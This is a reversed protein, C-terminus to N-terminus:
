GALAGLLADLEAGTLGTATVTYCIYRMEEPPSGSKHEAAWGLPTDPGAGAADAARRVLVDASNDLTVPDIPKWLYLTTEARGERDTGTVRTGSVFGDLELPQPQMDGDGTILLSSDSSLGSSLSVQEGEPGTYTLRLSRAQRQVEEPLDFIAVTWGDGQELASLEAQEQQQPTSYPMVSGDAFTFREPLAAAMRAVGDDWTWAALLEARDSSELMDEGSGTSFGGGPISRAEVFAQGFRVSDLLRTYEPDPLHVNGDRDVTTGDPYVVQEDGDLQWSPAPAFAAYPNGQEDTGEPAYAEGEPLVTLQGTATDYVAWKRLLAAGTLLAALLAAAALVAVLRRRTMHRACPQQALRPAIRPWLDADPPALRLLRQRLLADQETTLIDRDPKPTTM